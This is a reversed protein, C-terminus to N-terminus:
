MASFSLHYKLYYNLCSFFIIIFIYYFHVELLEQQKEVADKDSVPALSSELRKETDTLWVTFESNVNSYEEVLELVKEIQTERTSLQTLVDKWKEELIDLRKRLVKKEKGPARTALLKEGKKVVHDFAPTHQTIDDSVPQSPIFFINLILAFILFCLASLLSCLNSLLSCLASILSCLLPANITNLSYSLM